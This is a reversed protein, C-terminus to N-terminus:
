GQSRISLWHLTASNSLTASTDSRLTATEGANLYAGGSFMVFSSAAGTTNYSVFEKASGNIYLQLDKAAGTTCNWSGDFDYWSPRPATFTTGSWSGHSDTVKTTFDVNTVNATIAGGANGTYKLYVKESAAVQAPGSLRSISINGIAGITTTGGCRISVSNNAKLNPILISGGGFNGSSGTILNRSLTGNVYIAFQLTSAANDSLVTGVIYDGPVPISYASGSWAGHSDKESTFTIDTVNATVAQTSGKTGSFDVVRTDTESSLVQSTGWGAIPVKAFFGTPTTSSLTNGLAFAYSPSSSSTLGFRLSTDSQPALVAGSQNNATTGFYGVIEGSSGVGSSTTVNGSVGNFGLTMKATVGTNTGTTFYGRVELDSGVRRSQVSIASVTGFGTFTPTYAVWDTVVAGSNYTNPSVSLADFRLTYALASTSATHFILRYSTSNSAAQFECKIQEVGTTNKIQYASPQILVANTVDYVWVSMDNDAFTGSAVKYLASITMPKSQYASDITFAYSFGESMRNNASKTWLFNETGVLSSDTSIAFTSSPSGGTGNLPRDIVLTGSGDTTLTLASGGSTASVQFTNTASGVVYYATNVSIGTTSTISTFSVVQGDNLGHATLNVLDGADTFTVAQDDFYTAWGTIDAGDPTLIYNIGGGGAGQLETWDGNAIGGILQYNKADAVVYVTLGEYRVGSAIADRATSDAVVTRSDLPVAATQDFNSAVTIAM